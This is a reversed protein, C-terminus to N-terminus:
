NGAYDSVAREYKNLEYIRIANQSFIAEKMSMSGGAEDVADLISKMQEYLFLTYGAEEEPYPHRNWLFNERCLNIYTRETWKRKGHWLLIPQDTGYIIQAPKLVQFAAKYVQPNIVATTDFYLKQVADGLKRIGEDFFCLNFCRGMHALVLRINPYKELITCIDRINDDDALRESRPLHILVAKHLRNAIELHSHPMYDFIRIEDEAINQAFSVYPKFGSFGSKVFTNEVYEPSWEPRVVMLAHGSKEIFERSVYENNAKMDAEKLPFPLALLDVHQNPFLTKSYQKAKEIPLVYGCQLAWDKNITEETIGTVHQELNIHIHADIIHGPLRDTLYKEYFRKDQGDRDFYDQM